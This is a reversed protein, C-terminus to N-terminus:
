LCFSCFCPKRLATDSGFGGGVVLSGVLCVPGLFVTMFGPCFGAGGPPFCATCFVAGPFGAGLLPAGAAASFGTLSPIIM